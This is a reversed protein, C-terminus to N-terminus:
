NGRCFKVLFRVIIKNAIKKVPPLSNEIKKKVKESVFKSLVILVYKTLNNNQDNNNNM